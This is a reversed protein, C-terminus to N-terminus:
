IRPLTLNMEHLKYSHWITHNILHDNILSWKQLSLRNPVCKNYFGFCDLAGTGVYTSTTRWETLLNIWALGVQANKPHAYYCALPLLWCLCQLSPFSFNVEKHSLLGLKIKIQICLSVFMVVIKLLPRDTVVVVSFITARCNKVNTSLTSFFRSVM